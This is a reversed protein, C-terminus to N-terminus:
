DDESAEYDRIVDGIIKDLMSKESVTLKKWAAITRDPPSMWEFVGILQNLQAERNMRPREIVQRALLMEGFGYNGDLLWGIREGIIEPRDRMVEFFEAAAEKRDALPARRVEEIKRLASALERREYEAQSM